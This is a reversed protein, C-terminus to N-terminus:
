SASHRGGFIGCQLGCWHCARLPPYLWLCPVLLSLLVLGFWRRGCSMECPHQAFEGEADSMCHYLMARACRMCSVGEIVRKVCDPAYECAGLQNEDEDYLEQCYRCRTRGVKRGPDKLPLVELSRKKISGSSEDLSSPYMLDSTLQIYSHTPSHHHPVPPRNPPTAHRSSRSSTHSDTSSRSDGREV